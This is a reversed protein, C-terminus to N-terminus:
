LPWHHAEHDGRIRMMSKRPGYSKQQPATALVYLWSKYATAPAMGLASFTKLIKKQHADSLSM